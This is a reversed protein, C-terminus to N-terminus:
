NCIIDGTSHSTELKCINNDTFSYTNWRSKLIRNDIKTDLIPWLHSEDSQIFDYRDEILDHTCCVASGDHSQSWISLKTKDVWTEYVTINRIHIDLLKDRNAESNNMQHALLKTKYSEVSDRVKTMHIMTIVSRDFIHVSECNIQRTADIIINYKDTIVNHEYKSDEYIKFILTTYTLSHSVLRHSNDGFFDLSTCIGGDYDNLIMTRKVIALEKPDVMEDVDLSMFHTCGEDKCVELGINRQYMEYGFHETIILNGSQDYELSPIFEDIQDILGEDELTELLEILRNKDTNSLEYGINGIYQVSIHIFDVEPRITTVMARLWEFGDFLNVSLGLKM